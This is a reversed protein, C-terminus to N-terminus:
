GFIPIELFPMVGYEQSGLAKYRSAGGETPRGRRRVVEREFAIFAETHGDLVSIPRIHLECLYPEGTQRYNQPRGVFRGESRLERQVLRAGERSTGTGQLMRPTRSIVDDAEYGTMRSFTANAYIITPGRRSLKADTVPLSVDLSAAFHGSLDVLYM